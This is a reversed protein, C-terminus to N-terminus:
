FKIINYVVSMSKDGYLNAKPISGDIDSIPKYVKNKYLPEWRTIRDLRFFKWSPKSTKTDGFPQYARIVPNGAKTLGFAYVEITRKGTASVGDTGAYHINVRYKGEIADVVADRSTNELILEELLNYLKM